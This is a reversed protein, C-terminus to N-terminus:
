GIVISFGTSLANVFVDTKPVTNRHAGCHVRNASLVASHQRTVIRVTPVAIM